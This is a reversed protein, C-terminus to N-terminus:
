SFGSVVPYTIALGLDNALLGFSSLAQEREDRRLVASPPFKSLFLLYFTDMKGSIM